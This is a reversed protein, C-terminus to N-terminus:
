HVHPHAQVELFHQHHADGKIKSLKKVEEEDEEEEISSVSTDPNLLNKIKGENIRRM